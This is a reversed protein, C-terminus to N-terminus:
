WSDAKTSSEEPKDGQLKNKDLTVLQGAPAYYHLLRAKSCRSSAIMKEVSPSNSHQDVLKDCAKALLCGTQTMFQALAKVDQEFDACDEQSPWVNDRLYSPHEKKQSPTM